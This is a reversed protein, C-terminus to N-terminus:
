DPQALAVQQSTLELGAADYQAQLRPSEIRIREATEDSAVSIRLDVRRRDSLSVVAEVTGLKPLDLLVRSRWVPKEAADTESPAHGDEQIEWQMPQGAWAIGQWSVARQDLAQLQQQVLQRIQSPMDDLTRSGSQTAAGQTLSSQAAKASDGDSAAGTHAPLLAEQQVLKQAGADLQTSQGKDPTAHAENDLSTEEAQVQAARSPEPSSEPSSLQGQPERLLSQIDRQGQSWASLHSEYFVGSESLAQKLSAALEATDFTEGSVLPALRVQSTADTKSEDGKAMLDGIFRAVQSLDVKSSQQAPPADPTTPPPAAAAAPTDQILFTLRPSNAIVRLDMAKGNETNRPLNLDLLQDKVMVAFRGSPLQGTVEARVQEGVTFLQQIEQIADVVQILPQQPANLYAQLQTVLANTPIV